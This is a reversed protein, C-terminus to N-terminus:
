CRTSNLLEFYNETGNIPIDGLENESVRIDAIPDINLYDYVIVEYPKSVSIPETCLPTDDYPNEPCDFVDTIVTYNHEGQIILLISKM